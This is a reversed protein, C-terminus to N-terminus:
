NKGFSIDYVRVAISCMWYKSVSRDDRSALSCRALAKSGVPWGASVVSSGSGGHSLSHFPPSPLNSKPSPSPSSSPPLPSSSTPYTPNPSKTLHTIRHHHPNSSRQLHIFTFDSAPFRFIQLVFRCYLTLKKIQQRRQLYKHTERLDLVRGTVETVLYPNSLM